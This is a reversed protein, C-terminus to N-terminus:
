NFYKNIIKNLDKVKIPKSLYDDFGKSIYIDKAGTYNNATLAIVPPLDSKLSKIINLTEIGDMEPMMQDLFILDFHNNKILEVADHGNNITTITFKYELLLREALRLNISNDDVVLVKKGSCDINTITEKEKSTFLKGVKEFGVIKQKINIYYNTGRGPENKFATEGGLLNILRKAIILGLSTSDIINDKNDLTFDNFDKNFDEEEMAHGSNNIIFKLTIIDDNIEKDVKLTISGYSTYELANYLVNLLIKYIKNSDGYLKNPIDEDVLFVFKINEENVKSYFISQIELLVDVINYEKEMVKEKNSELRSIDLINNILDLLLVGSDHITKVDKIVKQKTLNDENLLSESLGLITNMPTRIEHSMNSLFETKATNAREAEKKAIELEGLLMYDQSEITFYMGVVTFSFVFTLSNFDFVFMKFFSLTLFFMFLLYLTMRHSLPIKDKSKLLVFVIIFILIFSLYYLVSVAPGGIVYLENNPGGTFTMPLRLSIFFLIFTFILFSTIIMINYKKKNKLYKNNNGYSWLYLIFCLVWIICFLIYSRCMIENFLYMDIRHSMTYVCIIEIFSLLITLCILILYVSNNLGKYKKKTFYVLAIILVLLLGVITFGISAFM